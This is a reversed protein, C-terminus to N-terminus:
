KWLNFGYKRLIKHAAVPDNIDSNMMQQANAATQGADVSPTTPDQLKSIVSLVIHPIESNSNQNYAENLENIAYAIRPKMYDPIESSNRIDRLLSEIENILQQSPATKLKRIKEELNSIISDM